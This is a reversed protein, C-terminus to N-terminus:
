EMLKEVSYEQNRDNDSSTDRDPDNKDLFEKYMTPLAYKMFLYKNSFEKEQSIYDQISLQTDAEVNKENKKQSSLQQRIYDPDSLRSRDIKM